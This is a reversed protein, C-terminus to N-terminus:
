APAKDCEPRGAMRRRVMQGCNSGIENEEMNGVSEIVQYGLASFEEAKQGVLGWAREWGELCELRNEGAAATPNLPTLKVVFRRPDFEGGLAGPQCPVGPSLAFNLSPQRRGPRCFREGWAAMEGWGMKPYPMLRDRVAQDTTNMSFQLQFDAFGESAELLSEFWRERGAPAMTAICPMAAPLTDALWHIAEIVADNLAPEGMRAFQVKLKRCKKPDQEPNMKFAYEIQGIIEGATLNGRFGGGADCMLCGVPCGYQSSVVIVWKQDRGGVAPDCADVFEVMLGPDNRMEALFVRALGKRGAEGIIRM